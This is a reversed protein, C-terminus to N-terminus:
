LRDDHISDTTLYYNMEESIDRKTKLLEKEKKKSDEARAIMIVDMEQTLLKDYYETIDEIELVSCFLKKGCFPCYKIPIYVIDECDREGDYINVTESICTTPPEDKGWEKALEIYKCNKVDDCCYEINIIKYSADFGIIFKKLTINM